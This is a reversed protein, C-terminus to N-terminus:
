AFLYRHDLSCAFLDDTDMTAATRHQISQPEHKLSLSTSTRSTMVLSMFALRRQIVAEQSKSPNMSYCVFRNWMLSKSRVKAGEHKLDDQCNMESERYVLQFQSVIGLQRERIVLLTVAMFGNITQQM